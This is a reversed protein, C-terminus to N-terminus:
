TDGVGRMEFVPDLLKVDVSWLDKCATDESVMPLGTTLARLNQWPTCVHLWTGDRSVHPFGGHETFLGYFQKETYGRETHISVESIGTCGPWRKSFAKSYGSLWLKLRLPLQHQPICKIRTTQHAAAICHLNCSTSQTHPFPQLEWCSCLDPVSGKCLLPCPFRHCWGPSQGSLSVTPALPEAPLGCVVTHM